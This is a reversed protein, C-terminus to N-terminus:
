EDDSVDKRSLLRTICQGTFDEGGPLFLAKVVERWPWYCGRDRSIGRLRHNHFHHKKLIRKGAVDLTTSTSCSHGTVGVPKSEQIYYLM